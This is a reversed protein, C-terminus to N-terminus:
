YLLRFVEDESGRSDNWGPISWPQGLESEIRNLLVKKAEREAPGYGGAAIHIAQLACVNGQENYMNGKLWGRQRIVEAAQTLVYNSPRPAMLKEPAPATLLAEAEAVAQVAAANADATHKELLVDLGVAALELRTNFDLVPSRDTETSTEHKKTTAM